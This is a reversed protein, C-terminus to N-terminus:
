NYVTVAGAKSARERNRLLRARLEASALRPYIREARDSPVEDNDSPGSASSVFIPLVCRDM